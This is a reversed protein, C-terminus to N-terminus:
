QSMGTLNGGAKNGLIKAAIQGYLHATVFSIYPGVALGLLLAAIWGLCPIISLVGGVVSIAFAAVISVLFAILIDALHNRIIAMVEGFRFCAGFEDKIAYQILIAPTLFLFAIAFLIILCFMLFGGGTAALAAIDEGNSMSAVGGTAAIGIFILILFPLTYVIQAVTVNFGDRLLEGWDEWEPLNSWSGGMVQRIIKVLYGQLILAPVILFGLVTMLVGIILKSIWQKDEIVYRFSKNVDM